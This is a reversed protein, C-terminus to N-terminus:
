GPWHVRGCTEQAGACMGAKGIEAGGSRERDMLQHAVQHGLGKRMGGVAHLWQTEKTQDGQSM